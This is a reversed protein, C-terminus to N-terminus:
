KFLNYNKYRSVSSCLHDEYEKEIKNALKIKYFITNKYGSNDTFKCKDNWEDKTIYIGHKNNNM